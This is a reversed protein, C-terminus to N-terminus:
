KEQVLLETEPFARDLHRLRDLAAADNKLYADFFTLVAAHTIEKQRMPDILPVHEECGPMTMNNREFFLCDPNKDGPPQEKNDGFWV